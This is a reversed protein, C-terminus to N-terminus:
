RFYAGVLPIGAGALNGAGAFTHVRPAKAGTESGAGGTPLRYLVPLTRPGPSPTSARRRRVSGAGTECSPM